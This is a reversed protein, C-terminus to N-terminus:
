AIKVVAMSCDVFFVDIVQPKDIKEKAIGINNICGKNDGGQNLFSTKWLCNGAIEPGPDTKETEEGARYEAGQRVLERLLKTYCVNYSTIRFERTLKKERSM